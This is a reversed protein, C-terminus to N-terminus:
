DPWEGVFMQRDELWDIIRYVVTRNVGRIRICDDRFTVPDDPPHRMIEALVEPHILVRPDAQLVRIQRALIPHHESQVVCNGFEPSDVRESWRLGGLEDPM